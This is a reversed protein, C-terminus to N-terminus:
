YFSSSNALSNRLKCWFMRQKRPDSEWELYVRTKMLYKLMPSLHKTSIEGLKIIVLSDNACEGNENEWFLRKNEAVQVEWRCWTSKIYAESVILLTKRSRAVSELVTESIVTGIQFDREYVCLKYFPEDKELANVLKMVFAQDENSYSVFADYEYQIPIKSSRNYVVRGSRSLYLKTLFIWYEIHWRYIYAFIGVVALIVAIAAVPAVFALHQRCGEDDGIQLLFDVIKRNSWIKPYGCTVNERELLVVINRYSKKTFVDYLINIDPCKCMFPNNNLDIQELQNFDQLMALSLDKIKNNNLNLYKLKPNNIFVREDWAMLDNSSLNVSELNQLPSLINPQLCTIQNKELQLTKLKTLNVFVHAFRSINEFQCEALNLYELNELGNFLGRQVDRTPFPNGQLDLHRLNQLPYFASSNAFFISTDQLILVELKSLGKFSSSSLKRINNGSLNLYKLNTMNLFSTGELSFYKEARSIDLYEISPLLIANPIDSFRNGSLHLYKLKPLNDFANSTVNLAVSHEIILRELNPMNPFKQIVEFRNKTLCLDTVNSSAIVNLVGYPLENFGMNGLRLDRLPISANLMVELLNVLNNQDMINESLDFVELYKLQALPTANVSKIQCTTFYFNTLTMNELIFDDGTINEFPMSAITLFKLAPLVGYTISYTFDKLTHFGNKELTLSTLNVLGQFAYKELYMLNKNYSITVNIINSMNNFAGPEIRFFNDNMEMNFSLLRQHQALDNERLIQINTSSLRLMPMTVNLDRPYNVCRKTDFCTVYQEVEYVRCLCGSRADRTKEISDPLIPPGDYDDQSAAFVILVLLWLKAIIM